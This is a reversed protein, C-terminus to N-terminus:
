TPEEVSSRSGHEMLCPRALQLRATRMSKGPPRCSCVNVVRAVVIAAM